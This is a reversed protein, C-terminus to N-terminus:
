DTELDRWSFAITGLAVFIIGMIGVICAAKWDPKAAPVLAVYHLLSSEVIVHNLSMVSALLDVVFSWVLVVYMAVVAVRPKLGYLLVGIGLLCIIPGMLSLTGLMAGLTVAIGQSNAIAWGVLSVILCIVAAALSLIVLRGILWQWRRVPRVLLSDLYSRSEESRIASLGGAMMAMLLAAVLLTGMGLFALNIAQQTGGSLSTLADSLSSSERLSDSAVKTLSAMMSVIAGCVILWGLLSPWMRRLSLTWVRNLLGYRPTAHDSEAIIGQGLDRHGALWLGVAVLTAVVPVFLLLWLSQVGAAVHLKDVWGFPTFYKMWGLNSVVNGVARLAFMCLVVVLGYRVARRRTAALQSTVAGVGMFCIAPAIIALGSLLCRWWDLRIDASMGSLLIISSGLVWAVVAALGAGLLTSAVARRATTQGSRLMEWPGDEEQGRLSKTVAFLGWLAAVVAMVAQGRYIMYGAPTAVHIPEGYLVGLQPVSTVTAAFKQRSAADPYTKAMGFGQLAMFLGACVGFIIAGRLLRRFTSRVIMQNTSAVPKLQAHTIAASAVASM